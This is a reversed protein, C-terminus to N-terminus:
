RAPDFPRDKLRVAPNGAYVSWPRLPGTVVARAAIVCGEPVTVGPGIFAEAAIWAQAGIEIEGTILPNSARRYDHSGGCLFARQSVIAGARIRLPAMNYCEVGDALVSHSDMTLNPPYWIKAGGRVSASAAIRAGFLRLLYRRWPWFAPPTWAALLAWTFRWGLRLLRHSLPFSASDRRAM